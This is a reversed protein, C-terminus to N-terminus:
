LGELPEHTNSRYEDFDCSWLLTARNCWRALDKYIQPYIIKDAFLPQYLMIFPTAGLEKVKRARMLGDEWGSKHGTLIYVKVQNRPNIGIRRLQELAKELPASDEGSDWSLFMMPMSTEAIFHANARDVLRTDLGGNWEVRRGDLKDIVNIKHEASTALINPDIMTPAHGWEDLERVGDWMRPVICWPCDRICGVSTYSHSFDELPYNEIDWSTETSLGPGGIDVATGRWGLEYAIRDSKKHEWSFIASIYAKDLKPTLLSFDNYVECGHMSALKAAAINPYKSANFVGIM